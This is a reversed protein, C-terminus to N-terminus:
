TETAPNIRLRPRKREPHERKIQAPVVANRSQDVGHRIRIVLSSRGGHGFDGPDERRDLLAVWLGGLLQEREDVLLQAPQRRVLQGPLRRPLREVGRGQDVLGIQPQDTM